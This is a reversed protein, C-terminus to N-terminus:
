LIADRSNFGTRAGREGSGDFAIHQARLERDQTAHGLAFRCVCNGQAARNGAGDEVGITIRELPALATSAALRLGSDHQM